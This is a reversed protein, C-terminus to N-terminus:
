VTLSVHPPDEYPPDSTRNRIIAVVKRYKKSYMLNKQCVLIDENYKRQHQPTNTVSCHHHTCMILHESAREAPSISM